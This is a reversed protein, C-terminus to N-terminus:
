KLLMEKVSKGAPGDAARARHLPVVVDLLLATSRVDRSRRACSAAASSARGKVGFGEGDIGLIRRVPEGPNDPGSRTRMASITNGRVSGYFRDEWQVVM